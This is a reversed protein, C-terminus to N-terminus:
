FSVKVSKREEKDTIEFLKADTSFGVMASIMIAPFSQRYTNFLMVEDNYHQRAFGIKNETTTLEEHLRNMTEDAKLEPYDEAVMSLNMMAGGLAGEAAMLGAIASASGPSAAADSAASRATNRAQIVATLTSHEHDLYKRAVEVLNPILDYRRKLQVDIQSFSNEFRNKLGVLKNYTVVFVVALLVTVGITFYLAEM